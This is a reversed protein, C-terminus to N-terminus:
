PASVHKDPLIHASPKPYFPAHRLQGDRSYWPPQPLVDFHDHRVINSCRFPCTWKAYHAIYELTLEILRGLGERVACDLRGSEANEFFWLKTIEADVEKNVPLKVLLYGIRHHQTSFLLPIFLEGSPNEFIPRTVDLIRNFCDRRRKNSTSGSSDALEIHEEATIRYAQLLPRETQPM